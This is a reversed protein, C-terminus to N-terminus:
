NMARMVPNHVLTLSTEQIAGTSRQRQCSERVPKRSCHQFELQTLQGSHRGDYEGPSNSQIHGDPALRLRVDDSFSASWAHGHEGSAWDLETSSQRVPSIVHLVFCHKFRIAAFPSDVQVNSSEVEERLLLPPSMSGM